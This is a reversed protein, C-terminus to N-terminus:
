SPGLLKKVRPVISPVAAEGKVGGETRRASCTGDPNARAFLPVLKSECALDSAGLLAGHQDLDFELFVASELERDLSGSELADHFRVCPECWTAGVYLVVPRGSHEQIRASVYARGDKVDNPVTLRLPKKASGQSQRQASSRSASVDRAIPEEREATSCAGVLMAGVLMAGVFTGGVVLSRM